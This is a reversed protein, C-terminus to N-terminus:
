ARAAVPGGEGQDLLKAIGDVVDRVSRISQAADDPININFENEVAFLINIGDLSDIGLEEFTSDAMVKEQPLHQTAAIIGRVRQTLEEHSM